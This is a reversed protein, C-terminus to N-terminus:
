RGNPDRGTGSQETAVRIANTGTTAGVAAAKAEVPRSSQSVAAATMRECYEILLDEDSLKALDDFDPAGKLMDLLRARPTESYSDLLFEFMDYADGAKRPARQVVGFYADKHAAYEAMEQDSMNQVLIMSRNDDTRVAIYAKKESESVTATTVEAIVGEGIDSFFYREGILVRNREESFAESPLSGDFTLPLSPYGRLAEMVRYADAHKKKERYMESVRRMGPKGFDPVNLGHALAAVGIQIDDLHRHFAMNTVFVYASVGPPTARERADLRKVAKELWDPKGDDVRAVANVDIFVMRDGSSPKELALGLHESIKEAPDNRTSGDVKTKGLLGAVSRMKAEVSYRGGTLKSRAAFECHKSRTDVENELVLEFGARILCNAVVLEYYAGQFQKPDRLRRVLRQQVEVNHSLLYLNYALGLYCHVVGTAYATFLGGVNETQSAKFRRYADFWQMIPHRDELPKALEATGWERGLVSVIYEGLFDAFTKWNKSVGIQNGIAVFRSGNAEASIIPRGLGQQQKRMLENARHRKIFKELDPRIRSAHPKQRTPSGCCRKFKVGSGCPCPQNRGVKM